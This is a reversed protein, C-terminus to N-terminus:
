RHEQGPLSTIPHGNGAVFLGAASMKGVSETLSRLWAQADPQALLVTLTTSSTRITLALRQGAPSPLLTLFLTAPTEGLLANGLDVATGEPPTV